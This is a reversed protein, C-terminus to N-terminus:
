LYWNDRTATNSQVAIQTHLIFDVIAGSGDYEVLVLDYVGPALFPLIYSGNEAIATSTIANAFVVGNAESSETNSWTSINADDYGYAYVIYRSNPNFNSVNGVIKGAEDNVVLRITPKLKYTTGSRVVSKRVDFDATMTVTGNVPVWYNGIAKYGTESGSPVFLPATSNDDFRIYCGPNAGPRSGEEPADLLFRIQTYHGAPLTFDGLHISNGNRWDLLNIPNISTNFENLTKWEGESTHYEIGKVTIFVGTVNAEDSLPADSLYLSLTGNTGESGGCGVFVAVLLAGLVSVFWQFATM